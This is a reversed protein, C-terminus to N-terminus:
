RVDEKAGKGGRDARVPNDDDEYYVIMPERYGGGMCNLCPAAGDPSYVNGAFSGGTQGFLNGIRILKM